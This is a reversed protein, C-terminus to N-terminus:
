PHKLYFIEHPPCPPEITTNLFVFGVVKYVMADSDEDQQHSFSLSSTWFQERKPDRDGKAM